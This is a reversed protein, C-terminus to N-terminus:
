LKRANRMIKHNLVPATGYNGQAHLSCFRGGEGHGRKRICQYTVYGGAVPYVEAVCRASDEPKGNGYKTM